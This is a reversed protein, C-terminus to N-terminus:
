IKRKKQVKDQIDKIVQNFRKSKISPFAKILRRHNFSLKNLIKNYREKLEKLNIEIEESKILAKDVLAAYKNKLELEIESLEIFIHNFENLSIITLIFDILFCFLFAYSLVIKYKYPIVNVKSYVFPQIVRIAVISILGWALSFSLCIRGKINLFNNSYDWWKTNFFYELVAGTIYEVLSTIIMGILFIYLTTSESPITILLSLMGFGYIPCLPGYLFGRNVFTGKKIFAYTVELLWGFLSYIMLLLILEYVYFGNISFFM